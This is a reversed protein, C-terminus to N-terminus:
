EQYTDFLSFLKLEKNVREISCPEETTIWIHKDEGPMLHFFRDSYEVKGKPWDAWVWLAPVRSKLSVRFKNDNEKEIKANFVPKRLELHKPPVFIVTNDSEVGDNGTYKIYLLVNREGAESLRRKLDLVNVKQVSNGKVAAAFEGNELINGDTNFLDWSVTGSIDHLYDNNLYIEVIGTKRDEVASVLVPAFFKVAHYHLAKWNGKYDISSWSPGPWCDNLQWYLAGMVRPASRRWHEVAYRMAEGQQIQSLYLQMNFSSPLRFWSLMYQIIADNGIHSRQHYEMIYSTINRDEPRTYEKVTEPSPFSQFGFESIFRHLCQRYWEFPKRGHWVGWLHADGRDPNDYDSRNGPTHPSSPWYSIYPAHKKIVGPLLKDFLNGYEDWTMGGEDISETICNEIQEIENNGCLLALCAHHRIRRINDEAEKEVNLMFEEDYAPYASCAFPFDQWVCLGLRDCLDYFIDSEYIGGGWVRIMNMGAKAADRLLKEYFEPTIRTVFTDAPIWNVGKAFFPVSNVEFHFSEGWQDPATILKLTRLGINKEVKDLLGADSKVTFVVRYLNQPGMNNPWWLKPEPVEFSISTEKEAIEWKTEYVAEDRFFLKLSGELPKSPKRSLEAAANLIVRNDRHEQIIHLDEIKVEDYAQIEIRKWIGCTVLKPGWDWGYNCQMKRIQNSDEIREQGIGTHWVKRRLARERIYPITSGFVIRIHNLGDKLYKKIDFEWTRFMNDAEGVKEGNIQISALTDLGECRLIVRERGTVGPDVTFSREYSWDTEGIWMLKQENDAFYPDEILNNELLDTHVCGPVRAPVNRFSGGSLYWEGCLDIKRLLTESM